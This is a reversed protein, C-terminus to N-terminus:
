IALLMAHGTSAGRDTAGTDNEEITQRILKGFYEKSRPRDVFSLSLVRSIYDGQMRSSFEASARKPNKCGLEAFIRTTLEFFGKRLKTQFDHFAADHHALLYFELRAIALDRNAPLTVSRWQKDACAAMLDIDITEGFDIKELLPKYCRKFEDVGDEFLKIFGAKLLDIRKPYHYSTAGEPLGLYSDIRRHTLRRAGEQALIEIVADAISQKRAQVASASRTGGASKNNGKGSNSIGRNAM